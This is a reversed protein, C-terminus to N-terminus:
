KDASFVKSALDGILDLMLSSSSGAALAASYLVLTGQGSLTISDAVTMVQLGLFSLMYVLAGLIGGVLPRGAYYILWGLGWATPTPQEGFAAATEDTLVSQYFKRFAVLTAGLSGFGGAVLHARLDPFTNLDVLAHVHLAIIGAIEGLFALILVSLILWKM